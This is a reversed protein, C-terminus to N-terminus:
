SLRACAKEDNPLVESQHANFRKGPRGLFASVVKKSATVDLHDFSRLELPIVKRRITM